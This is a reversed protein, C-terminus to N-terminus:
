EAAVFDGALWEDLQALTMKTGGIKQIRKSKDGPRPVRLFDSRKANTQNPTKAVLASVFEAILVSPEHVPNGWQWWEPDMARHLPSDWPLWEVVAAIDSWANARRRPHRHDVDRWRLGNAVLSAELAQPYEDHLGILEQIKGRYCGVKEGM